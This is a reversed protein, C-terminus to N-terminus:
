FGTEEDESQACAYDIAKVVAVTLVAVAAASKWPNESMWKETATKANVVCAPCSPMNINFWSSTETKPADAKPADEAVVSSAAVVFVSALIFKKM